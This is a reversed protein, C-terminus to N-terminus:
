PHLFLIRLIDELLLLCWDYCPKLLLCLIHPEGPDVVDRVKYGLLKIANRVSRVNGAGYDLLTVEDASARCTLASGKKAETRQRQKSQNLQNLQGFHSTKSRQFSSLAAFDSNGSGSPSDTLGEISRTSPPLTSQQVLSRSSAAM